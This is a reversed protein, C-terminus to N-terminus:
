VLNEFGEIAKAKSHDRIKDLAKGAGGRMLGRVMDKQTIIGIPINKDDIVVLRKINNRLMLQQADFLTDAERVSIVTRTMIDKLTPM